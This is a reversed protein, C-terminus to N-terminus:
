TTVLGPLNEQIMWRSNCPGKRAGTPDLMRYGKIPISALREIIPSQNGLHELVWGLRKSITVGLREAYNAIREIDVRDMAVEFAHIAEGFDGCYQPMSIGDLLTRELDTMYVRSDGVWVQQTGFYREPRVQVFKYTVEGVPYHGDRNSSTDDQLRPVSHETTTLVFVGRPTQETLGHYSMASWHSIAAPQVLAMAVEFEHTDSIGPVSSSLAYLGRRLPVIWGNQRLHFLAEGLYSDKLGVRPALERARDTTFIRDGEYALQRVLEIGVLTQKPRTRSTM